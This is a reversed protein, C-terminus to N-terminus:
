FGYKGKLDRINIYGYVKKFEEETMDLNIKEHGQNEILINYENVLERLEEITTCSEMKRHLELEEDSMRLLAKDEM